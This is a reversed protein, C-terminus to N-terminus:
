SSASRKKEANVIADAAIEPLLQELEIIKFGYVAKQGNGEEDERPLMDSLKRSDKRGPIFLLDKDLYDDGIDSRMKGDTCIYVRNENGKPVRPRGDKDLWGMVGIPYGNYTEYEDRVRVRKGMVKKIRTGAPPEGFTPIKVVKEGTKMKLTHVEPSENRVMYRIFETVLGAQEGLVVEPAAGKEWLKKQGIKKLEFANAVRKATAAEARRRARLAEATREFESAM